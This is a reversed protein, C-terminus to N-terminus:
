TPCILKGSAKPLTSLGKRQKTQAIMIIFFISDRLGRTKKEKPKRIITIKIKYALESLRKTMSVALCNLFEGSIPFVPFGV